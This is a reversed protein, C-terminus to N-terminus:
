RPPPQPPPAPHGQPPPTGYSTYQPPQQGYPQQPYPYPHGPGPPGPFGGPGGPGGPRNRKRRRRVVLWVVLAIVLLGVAGIVSWAIIAKRDAQKQMEASEALREKQEQAEKTAEPIRLPGYESGKPIDETLAALPRIVGYGYQPHPVQAGEVSAPLEATETLRNVIQGATLDPFKDRVLAAAASTYAAAASTGDVIGYGNPDSTGGAVVVDEAPASLLTQDGSSSETWFAGDEDTGSVAVVGAYAAPYGVEGGDNGTAGVVVVDNKLAYAIAESEEQPALPRDQKQSINIVSAGQDVAYRISEAYGITDDFGQDRIPLIKAEPALGMVGETDGRGHGHGAIISAIGTGHSDGDQHAPSGGDIFDKGDLIRGELDPHAVNIGDDIVAVVQGAGRSEKWLRAAELTTLPWQAQRVEDAAAHSAPMVGLAAVLASVSM